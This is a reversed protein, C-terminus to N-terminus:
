PERAVEGPALLRRLERAEREAVRAVVMGVHVLAWDGAELAEPTVVALELLRGGVDVTAVPFAGETERVSVVRAPLVACM